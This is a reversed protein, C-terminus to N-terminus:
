PCRLVRNVLRAVKSQKEKGIRNGKVKRERSM